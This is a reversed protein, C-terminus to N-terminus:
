QVAGRQILNEAKASYNAMMERDGYLFRRVRLSEGEWKTENPLLSRMAARHAPTDLEPCERVVPDGAEFVIMLPVYRTYVPQRSLLWTMGVVFLTLGCVSVLFGQKV